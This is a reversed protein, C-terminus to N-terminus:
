GTLWDTRSASQSTSRVRENQVRADLRSVIIYARVAHQKSEEDRTVGINVILKQTEFQCVVCSVVIASALSRM